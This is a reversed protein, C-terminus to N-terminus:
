AYIKNEQSHELAMLILQRKLNDCHIKRPFRNVCLLADAM